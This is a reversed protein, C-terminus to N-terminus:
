LSFLSVSEVKNAYHVKYVARVKLVDAKTYRDGGIRSYIIREASRRIHSPIMGTFDRYIHRAQDQISIGM